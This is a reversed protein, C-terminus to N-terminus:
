KLGQVLYLDSAHYRYTFAYYKGDATMVMDECKMEM